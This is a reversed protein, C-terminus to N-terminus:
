GDTNAEGLKRYNEEAIRGAVDIKDAIVYDAREEIVTAAGNRVSLAQHGLTNFFRRPHQRVEEYENMTLRVVEMCREDACECIFPVSGAIGM